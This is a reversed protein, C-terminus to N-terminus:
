SVYGPYSGATSSIYVISGGGQEKMSPTVLQTLHFASKVNVNMIHDWKSDEVEMLSSNLPNCAASAVFNDVKGHKDLMQKVIDERHAKDGVHGQIGVVDINM